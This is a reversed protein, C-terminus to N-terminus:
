AQADGLVSYMGGSTSRSMKGPAMAPSIIASSKQAKKKAKKSMREEAFCYDLSIVVAQWLNEDVAVQGADSSALLAHFRAGSFRSARAPFDGTLLLVQALLEITELATLMQATLQISRESTEEPTKLDATDGNPKPNTSFSALFARAEKRTWRELQREKSHEAEIARDHMRRVVYNLSLLPIFDDKAVNQLVQYDISLYDLIAETRAQAPRLALPVHSHGVERAKSDSSHLHLLKQLRPVAVDEAVVRTGKRVYEVVWKQRTNLLKKELAKQPLPSPSRISSQPESSGMISSNVESVSAVDFENNPTKDYRLDRLAGRLRGVDASVDDDSEAEDSYDEKVDILEDPDEEDEQDEEVAAGQEDGGEDIDGAAEDVDSAPIGIGDDLIAYMFTRLPRSVSRSVSETDPNELFIRPWFTRSFLINMLAPSYKGLRYAHLYLNAVDAAYISLDLDMRNLAALLRCEEPSHLSCVTRRLHTDESPRLPMAYPLTGEVVNEVIAKVQDPGVLIAAANSTAALTGVTMEILDMVSKPSKKKLKGNAPRVFASLVEGVRSIRQSLNLRREFLLNHFAKPSTSTSNPQPLLAGQMTYDNGVLAGLLPLLSLPLNLVQALATPTYLMASLTLNRSAPPIIGQGAIHEPAKKKKIKVYQFGNLDENEVPGTEDDGALWILEDLPIYGKYGESNLVVFDSDRGTVYGEVRGALEVAYPDGEGDAFHVELKGPAVADDNEVSDSTAREGSQFALLAQVCDTFALPPIIQTERLFRRSNRSAASTRFYLLAPQVHAQNLRGIVTQFKEVPTPGLFFSM